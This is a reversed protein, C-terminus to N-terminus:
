DGLYLRASAAWDRQAVGDWRERSHLRATVSGAMIAAMATGMVMDAAVVLSIGHRCIEEFYSVQVGVEHRLFAHVPRDVANRECQFFVGNESDYALAAGALRNGRKGDQLEHREGAFDDFAADGVVPLFQQPHLGFFYPM